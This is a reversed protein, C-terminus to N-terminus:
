WIGYILPFLDILFPLSLPLSSVSPSIPLPPPPSVLHFFSLSLFPSSPCGVLLQLPSVGTIAWPGPLGPFVPFRPFCSPILSPSRTKLSSCLTSSSSASSALISPPLYLSCRSGSGSRLSLRSPPFRFNLLSSASLAAQLRSGPYPHPSSPSSLPATLHPSHIFLLSGGGGRTTAGPTRPPAPTTWGTATQESDPLRFLFPSRVGILAGPGPGDGARRGPQPTRPAAQHAQSGRQM